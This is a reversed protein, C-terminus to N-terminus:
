KRSDKPFFFEDGRILRELAIEKYSPNMFRSAEPEFLAWLAVARAAVRSLEDRQAKLIRVEEELKVMKDTSDKFELCHWCMSEGTQFTVSDPRDLHESKV